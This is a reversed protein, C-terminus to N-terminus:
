VDKPKPVRSALSRPKRESTPTGGAQKYQPADAGYIAKFGARARVNLAHLEVNATDRREVMGTLRVRLANIEDDMTTVEASRTEFDTVKLDGLAFGPNEKWTSIIRAADAQVTDSSIAM